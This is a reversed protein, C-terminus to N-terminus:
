LGFVNACVQRRALSKGQLRAASWVNGPNYPPGLFRSKTKNAAFHARRPEIGVGEDRRDVAGLDSVEVHRDPARRPVHRVNSMSPSRMAIEPEPGAVFLRAHTGPYM